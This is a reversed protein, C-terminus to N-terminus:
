RSALIGLGGFASLAANLATDSLDVISGGLALETASDLDANSMEGDIAGTAEAVESTSIVPIDPDVSRIYTESDTAKIQFATGDIVIDTDPTNFHEHLTGGTAEAVHVEFLAGKTLSMLGTFSESPMTLCQIWIESNSMEAYTGNVHRLANYVADAQIFDQWASVPVSLAGFLLANRAMEDPKFPVHRSDPIADAVLKEIAKLRTHIRAEAHDFRLEVERIAQGKISISIRIYRELYEIDRDMARYDPYDYNLRQWWSAGKLSDDVDEELQVRRAKVHSLRSFAADRASLLPHTKRARITQELAERRMDSVAESLASIRRDKVEANQRIELEAKTKKLRAEISPRRRAIMEAIYPPYTEIDLWGLGNSITSPDTGFELNDLALTYGRCEDRLKKKRSARSMSTLFGLGLVGVVIWVAIGPADVIGIMLIPLSIAGIAQAIAWNTHNKVEADFTLEHAASMIKEQVDSAKREHLV